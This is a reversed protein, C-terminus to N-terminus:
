DKCFDIRTALITDMMRIKGNIYIKKNEYHIYIHIYKVILVVIVVVSGM